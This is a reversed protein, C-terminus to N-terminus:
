YLDGIGFTFAGRRNGEGVNTIPYGWDVNLPGLGPIFIRAGVGISIAEEPRNYIRDSEYANLVKGADVFFALKLNKLFPLKEIRDLFLFPTQIEASAMILGEGTGVESMKFGRVSYPGGLRYGMFEPMNDGYIKGSARAMLSLTSKKGLPYYHKISGSLRGNTSSFDTLGFAQDFRISALTGRRPGMVNDRTDYTLSPSITAFLGGKLQQARQSIPIGYINYLWAIQDYDGEKMKVHEVGLSISGYLNKASTLKRSFAIEGGYRQEIALPIQYSAYDRGFGRIMMQTNSSLFRPEIFSIEAQFNARKLASSDSLMLGSGAMLNLALRQGRGFLNNEAFGAMGFFGTQTDVGGGVSVTASRQEELKIKIDYNGNENKEIVRNVEKFASTAYLRALDSRIQNENYVSGKETLINRKVVYDKTKKNGEFTISNIIGEEINFNVIGDPDDNVNTVRALIYGKQAYLDEINKIAESIHKINQPKGELDKLCALIEGQKVSKNGNITFGVIPQNEEVYIKLIVNNEDIKVPVARMKESFYGMNYILKLNESTTERTFADGPKLIMNAKIENEDILNNGEIVIDKVFVSNKLATEDEAYKQIESDPEWLLPKEEEQIQQPQEVNQPEKKKKKGFFLFAHASNASLISILALALIKKLFLNNKQM